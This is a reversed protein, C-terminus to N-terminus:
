HTLQVTEQRVAAFLFKVLGILAFWIVIKLVFQFLHLSLSENVFLAFSYAIAYLGVSEVDRRSGVAYLRRFLVGLAYMGVM